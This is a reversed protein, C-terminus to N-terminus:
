PNLSSVTILKTFDELTLIVYQDEPKTTGRRKAVVAGVLAGANVAEQKAERIWAPLELKGGYDKAELVIQHPGVHVGGIDGTDKAGTTVRRDAFPFGNAKFWDAVLREFSSGAQKASARSRTM